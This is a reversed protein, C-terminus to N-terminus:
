GPAPPSSTRLARRRRGALAALAVLACAHLLASSPEPLVNTDILEETHFEGEFEAIAKVIGVNAALWNTDSESLSIFQGFITGSITLMTEVKVTDFTGLPVTVIEPGIVTSTSGYSLRFTGLGTFTFDAIGSSRASEGFSAEAPSLLWPPQFIVSGGEPGPEFAKHLRLGNADNTFDQRSGSSEGGSTEVVLTAVGNVNEVGPLVTETELVVGNDLYTWTNGSKLPYYVQPIFTASAGDAAGFVTVLALAFLQLFTKM